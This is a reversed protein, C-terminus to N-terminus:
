RCVLPLYTLIPTYVTFTVPLSEVDWPTFPITPLTNGTSMVVSINYTTPSVLMTFPVTIWIRTSTIAFPIIIEDIGNGLIRVATNHFDGWNSGAIVLITSPSGAKVATPIIYDISPAVSVGSDAAYTTGWKGGLLSLVLIVGAMIITVGWKIRTKTFM